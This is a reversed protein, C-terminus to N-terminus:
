RRVCQTRRHRCAHGSTPRLSRQRSMFICTDPDGVRDPFTAIAGDIYAIGREDVWIKMARADEPGGSALQVMTRWGSVGTLADMTADYDALCTVILDSATVADAIAEAPICYFSAAERPGARRNWGTVKHGARDFSRALASGMRGLGLVAVNQSSASM